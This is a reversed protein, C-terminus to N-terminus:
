YICGVPLTHMSHVSTTEGGEGGAGLFIVTVMHLPVQQISQQSGFAARLVVVCCLDTCLRHAETLVVEEHRHSVDKSRAHLGGGGHEFPGDSVEDMVGLYPQLLM